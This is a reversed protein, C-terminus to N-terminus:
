RGSAERDEIRRALADLRDVIAAAGNAIAEAVLYQSRAVHYGLVYKPSAAAPVGAVPVQTEAVQTQGTTAEAAIRILNRRADDSM